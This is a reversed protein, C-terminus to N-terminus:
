FIITYIGPFGFTSSLAVFKIAIVYFLVVNNTCAVLIDCALALELITGKSLAFNRLFNPQYVVLTNM